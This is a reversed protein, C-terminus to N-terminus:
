VSEQSDTAAQSKVWFKRMGYFLIFLSVAKEAVVVVNFENVSLRGSTVPQYIQRQTILAGFSALIALAAGILKIPFNKHFRKLCYVYLLVFVWENLALLLVALHGVLGVNGTMVIMVRVWM